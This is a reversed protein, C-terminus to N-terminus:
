YSSISRKAASTIWQAPQAQGHHRVRQDRPPRARPEGELSQIYAAVDEIEDDRLALAPMEFHGHESIATLKTEIDRASYLRSLVRFLPADRNPSKTELAVAHCSACRDQAVEAGRSVMPAVDHPAAAAAGAVACCAILALAARVM